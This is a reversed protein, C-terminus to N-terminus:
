AFAETIEIGHEVRVEETIQNARWIHQGRDLFANVV